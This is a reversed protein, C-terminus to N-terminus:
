TSDGVVAAVVAVIVANVTVGTMVAASLGYSWLGLAVRVLQVTVPVSPPSTTAHVPVAVNASAVTPAPLATVAVPTVSGPGAAPWAAVAVPGVGVRDGAVVRTRAEVVAAVVAEIVASVTVGDMVAASLGYSPVVAAVRVLQVTVPASPPSTTAHVPVAVNASALTPPPLVTVALPM